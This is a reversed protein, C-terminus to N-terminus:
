SVSFILTIIQYSNNGIHKSSKYDLCSKIFRILERLIMKTSNFKYIFSTKLNYLVKIKFNYKLLNLYITEIKRREVTSSKTKLKLPEPFFLRNKIDSKNIKLLETPCRVFFIAFM